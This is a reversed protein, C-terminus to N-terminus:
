TTLAFKLYSVGHTWATQAFTSTVCSQNSFGDRATFEVAHTVNKFAHDLAELALEPDRPLRVSSFPIRRRHIISTMANLFEPDGLIHLAAGVRPEEPDWGLDELLRLVTNEIFTMEGRFVPCYVMLHVVSYMGQTCHRVDSSPQPEGGRIINVETDRESGRTITMSHIIGAMYPKRVYGGEPAQAYYDVPQGRPNQRLFEELAPNNM